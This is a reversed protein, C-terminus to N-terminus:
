ALRSFHLDQAEQAERAEALRRIDRNSIEYYGDRIVPRVEENAIAQCVEGVRLARATHNINRHGTVVQTSEM